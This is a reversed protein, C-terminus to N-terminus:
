GAAHRVWRVDAGHEGFRVTVLDVRHIGLRRAARRVSAAKTATFNEIPDSGVRTKVEVAAREGDIRAVLDIEGPPVRVNRALM